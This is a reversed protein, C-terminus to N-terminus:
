CFGDRWEGGCGGCGSGARTFRLPERGWELPWHPAEAPQACKQLTDVPWGPDTMNKCYPQM